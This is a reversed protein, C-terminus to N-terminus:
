RRAEAEVKENGKLKSEKKRETEITKKTEKKKTRKNEANGGCIKGRQLAMLHRNQYAWAM